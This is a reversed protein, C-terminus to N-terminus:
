SKELHGAHLHVGRKPSYCSGAVPLYIQFRSGKGLASEVEIQGGHVLVIHKTIALGLGTGGALMQYRIRNLNADINSISMSTRLVAVIDKHLILPVAVYMMNQNLTHSFRVSAGIDNNMATQIEPRDAHNNMKEPTAHADGIVTGNPLVVTIRVRSERGAKKAARDMAKEDQMMVYRILQESLLRARVRLDAATQEIYFQRMLRSSFWGALILTLFIVALFYPFLLWFLSKERGM